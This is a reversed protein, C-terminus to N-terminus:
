SGDVPEPGAEIKRLADWDYLHGTGALRSAACFQNYDVGWGTTNLMTMWINFALGLTCVAAVAV